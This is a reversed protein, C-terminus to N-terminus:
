ATGVVVCPLCVGPQTQDDLRLRLFFGYAEDSGLFRVQYQRVKAEAGVDM